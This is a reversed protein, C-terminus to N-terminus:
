TDTGFVAYKLSPASIVFKYISQCYKEAENKAKEFGAQYRIDEVRYSRPAIQQENSAKLVEETSYERKLVSIKGGRSVCNFTYYFRNSGRYFLNTENEEVASVDASTPTDLFEGAAYSSLGEVVAKFDRAIYNASETADTFYGFLNVDYTLGVLHGVIRPPNEGLTVRAVDNFVQSTMFFDNREIFPPILNMLKRNKMVYEKIRECIKGIDSDSKKVVFVMITSYGYPCNKSVEGPSIDREYICPTDIQLPLEWAVQAPILSSDITALKFTICESEVSQFTLSVSSQSDKKVTLVYKNGNYTKAEAANQPYIAYYWSPYDIGHKIEDLKSCVVEDVYVSYRDSQTFRKWLRQLRTLLQTLKLEIEDTINVEGLAENTRDFCKLVYDGGKKESRSSRGAQNHNFARTFESVAIPTLVDGISLSLPLPSVSGENLSMLKNFVSESEIYKLLAYCYNNVPHYEPGLNAFRKSSGPETETYTGFKVSKKKIVIKKIVLKCDFCKLNKGSEQVEPPDGISVKIDARWTELAFTTYPREVARWVDVLRKRPSSKEDTITINWWIGRTVIKQMYNHREASYRISLWKRHSIIDVNDVDMLEHSTLDQNLYQDLNNTGEKLDDSWISLMDCMKGAIKPLNSGLGQDDSLERMELTLSGLRQCTVQMKLVGNFSSSEVKLPGIKDPASGEWNEVIKSLDFVLNNSTIRGGTLELLFSANIIPTQPEVGERMEEDPGLAEGDALSTYVRGAHKKNGCSGTSGGLLVVVIASAVQSIKYFKM